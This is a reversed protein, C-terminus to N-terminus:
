GRIMVEAIRAIEAVEPRSPLLFGEGPCNMIHVNERHLGLFAERERDTCDDKVGVAYYASEHEMGKVLEGNKVVYRPDGLVGTRDQMIKATSSLSGFRVPCVIAWSASQAILKVIEEMDDKLVCRGYTPGSCSGCGRCPQINKDELPVYQADVGRRVLEEHLMKGVAQEKGDSLILIM